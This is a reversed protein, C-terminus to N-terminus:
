EGNTNASTTDVSSQTQQQKFAEVTDKIARNQTLRDVRLSKRTIPSTGHRNIWETIANIEYTNGDEARVPDSFLELTIPCILYINHTQLLCKASREIKSLIVIYCFSISFM